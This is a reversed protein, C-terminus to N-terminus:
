FSYEAQFRVVKNDQANDDDYNIADYFLNFGLKKNMKYNTGIQFETSDNDGASEDQDVKAFTAYVNANKDINYALKGYYAKTDQMGTISYLFETGLINSIPADASTSILSNGDNTKAFGLKGCFADMAYKASINFYNSTDANANAAENDKGNAYDMHVDLGEIPTVDLSLTFIHDSLNTIKYYWANGKVYDTNFIAVAAYVDNVTVLTAGNKLADVYAAGVTLNDNVKYTAIAGAGHGPAYIDASTISTAVPIKGLIVSVPGNAYQMFLLNNVIGNDVVNNNANNNPNYVNDDDSYVNSEVSNRMVFKINEAVPVKFILIANTRWRNFSTADDPMYHYYRVRLKGVLDVNKIAETLPTASAVSMSGMAVLAALSLKKLM